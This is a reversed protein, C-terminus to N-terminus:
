LGTEMQRGDNFINYRISSIILGNKEILNM